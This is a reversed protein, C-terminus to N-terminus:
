VMVTRVGRGTGFRLVVMGVFCHCAVGGMRRVAEEGAGVGWGSGLGEEGLADLVFGQDEAGGGRWWCGAVAAAAAAAELPEALFLVEQALLFRPRQRRLLLADRAHM